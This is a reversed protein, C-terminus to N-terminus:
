SSLKDISRKLLVQAHAQEPTFGANMLDDMQDLMEQAAQRELALQAEEALAKEAAKKSQLDAYQNDTLQGERPGKYSEGYRIPSM